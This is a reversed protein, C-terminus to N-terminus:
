GVDLGDEGVKVLRQIARLWRHIKEIPEVSDHPVDFTLELRKGHASVWPKRPHSIALCKDSVVDKETTEALTSGDDRVDKM